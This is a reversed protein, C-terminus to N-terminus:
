NWVTIVRQLSVTKEYHDDDNIKMQLVKLNFLSKKRVGFM